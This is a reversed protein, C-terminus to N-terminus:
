KKQLAAALLAKLAWATFTMGSAQAAAQLKAWTADDVRGLQRAPDRGGAYPRGRPKAKKKAM